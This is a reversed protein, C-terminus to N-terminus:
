IPAEGVSSASDLKGFITSTVMVSARGNGTMCFDM